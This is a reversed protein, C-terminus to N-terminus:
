SKWSEHNMTHEDIKCCDKFVMIINAEVQRPKFYDPNQGINFYKKIKLRVNTCPMTLRNAIDWHFLMNWLM